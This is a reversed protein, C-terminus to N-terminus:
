GEQTVADVPEDFEPLGAAYRRLDAATEADIETKLANGLINTSIAREWCRKNDCLYAGRGNMKGTPDIMVPGDPTRVVRTLTRKASRDRCAICMRQPIHKPRPGKRRQGQPPKVSATM